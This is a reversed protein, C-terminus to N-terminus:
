RMSSTAEATKTAEQAEKAETTVKARIGLATLVHYIKKSSARFYKEQEDKSVQQRSVGLRRGLEAQTIGKWIRLRVLQKGIDEFACTQNFEGKKIQEYELISALINDPLMSTLQVMMEIEKKDYGQAELEKKKKGIAEEWEQMIELNRQYAKETKIM